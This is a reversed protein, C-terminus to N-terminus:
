PEATAWDVSRGLPGPACSTMVIGCTALLPLVARADRIRGLAQAACARTKRDRAGLLTVLSDVASADGIRGLAQAARSRVTGRRDGLADILSRRGASRRGPRRPRRASASHRPELRDRRVQGDGDALLAILPDIAPAGIRGLADAAAARTGRSALATLLPEVAPTGIRGLIAGAGRRVDTDRDMLAAVLAPIAAPDGVEGLAWAAGYRTDPGRQGLAAILAPVAPVGVRGLAMAASSRVEPDGKHGLAGILAAVDRAAELEEVDPVEIRPAGKSRGPRV